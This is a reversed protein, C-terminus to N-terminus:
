EAVLSLGTLMVTLGLTVDVYEITDTVPNPIPEPFVPVAVTVTAASPAKSIRMTSTLPRETKSCRRGEATRRSGRIIM